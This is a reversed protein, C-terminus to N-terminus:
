DQKVGRRAAMSAGLTRVQADSLVRRALPLLTGNELEIHRAYAENFRHVTAADLAAEGQTLALLQPRLARWAEEMGIHEGLLREILAGTEAPAVELLAPFLDHEEDDHHHQGATDFYRLVARAAQQAQEDCGHQPLHALLKNLTACQAGIRGHCARLIELPEDFRPAAGGLLDNM